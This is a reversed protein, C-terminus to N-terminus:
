SEDRLKELVAFPNPRKEQPENVSIGKKNEINLEVGEARPYPNMNISLTQAIVDGLLIKGDEIADYEPADPDLYVEEEDMRDAMEPEVLMLTFDTAVDEHVAELTVVCRQTLSAKLSGSVFIGQAEGQDKVEVDARFIALDILGFREALVAREADSAEFSYKRGSRDVEDAALVFDLSINTSM